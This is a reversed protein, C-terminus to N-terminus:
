GTAPSVARAAAPTSRANALPRRTEAGGLICDPAPGRHLLWRYVARMAESSRAQSFRERCLQQGSRGMARRQIEPLRALLDLGARVAAPETGIKLAAGARFGEPLNCHTTMLVPLGHSWAELVVM